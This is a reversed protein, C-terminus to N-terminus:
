QVDRLLLNRLNLLTGVACRLMVRTLNFGHTTTECQYRRKGIAVWHHKGSNRIEVRVRWLAAPRASVSSM